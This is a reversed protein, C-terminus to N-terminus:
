GEGHIQFVGDLMDVVDPFETDVSVASPPSVTRIDTGISAAWAYPEIAWSWPDGSTAPAAQAAFPASGMLVMAVIMRISNMQGLGMADFARNKVGRGVCSM